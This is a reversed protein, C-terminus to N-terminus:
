TAGKAMRQRRWIRATDRLVTVAALPSLTSTFQYDLDIPGEHIVLGARRAVVLFELDFAFGSEQVHPLVVDLAKRSFAKMGTQTDSVDLDFAARLVSQYVRSQVTRIPPYNVVSKPHVKSGIAVDCRGNLVEDILPILPQPHLDLDADIQAVANGEAKLLGYRLASGKGRNTEFDVIETQTLALQHVARSTGDTSGDNVVLIAFETGYAKTLVDHLRTLSRAVTREEQYAPVVVTLM